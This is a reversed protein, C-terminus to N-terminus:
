EYDYVRQIDNLFSSICCKKPKFTRSFLHRYIPIVVDIQDKGTINLWEDGRKSKSCFDDWLQKHEETFCNTIPFRTRFIKSKNLIEKRKDCGCDDGVLKKVASKIGTKETISEVKDGLGKEIYADNNDIDKQLKAQNAKWEKYEKTRKDLNKYYAEDKM